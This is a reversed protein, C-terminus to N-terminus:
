VLYSARAGVGYYSSTRYNNLHMAFVGANSSYGWNGGVLCAMENRLYRYVGDNGFETTGSASVGTAKPIGLATRKYDSTTRDTNM